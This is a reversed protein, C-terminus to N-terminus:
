KGETPRKTRRRTPIGGDDVDVGNGADVQVDTPTVPAAPAAPADSVAAAPENATGALKSTGIASGAAEDGPSAGPADGESKVEPLETGRAREAEELAEIREELSALRRGEAARYEAVSGGALKNDVAAAEERRARRAEFREAEDERVRIGDVVKIKSGM